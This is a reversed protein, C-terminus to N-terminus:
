ATSLLPVPRGDRRARGVELVAVLVSMDWGEPNPIRAFGDEVALSESSVVVLLDGLFDAVCDWVAERDSYVEFDCYIVQGVRGTVGPHTDVAIASDATATLPCWGRDWWVMRVAGDASGDLVPYPTGPRSSEAEDARAACLRGASRAGELNMGLIDRGGLVSWLAAVEAPADVGTLVEYQDPNGNQRRIAPESGSETLSNWILQATTVTDASM